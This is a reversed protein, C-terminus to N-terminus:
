PAPVEYEIGNVIHRFGVNAIRAMRDYITSLATNLIQDMLLDRMSLPERKAMDVLHSFATHKM